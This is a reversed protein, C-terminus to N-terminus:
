EYDICYDINTDRGASCGLHWPRTWGCRLPLRRDQPDKLKDQLVRVRGQLGARLVPVIRRSAIGVDCIVFGDEPSQSDLRSRVFQILGAENM